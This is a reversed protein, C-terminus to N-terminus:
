AGFGAHIALRSISVLLSVGLDVGMKRRKGAGVGVPRRAWASGPPADLGVGRRRPPHM